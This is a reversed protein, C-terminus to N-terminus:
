YGKPAASNTPADRPLTGNMVPHPPAPDGFGCEPRLTGGGRCSRGLDGCNPQRCRTCQNGKETAGVDACYQERDGLPECTKSRRRPREILQSAHDRLQTVSESKVSEESPNNNARCEAQRRFAERPDRTAPPRHAAVVVRMAATTAAPYTMRLYRTTAAREEPCVVLIMKFTTRPQVYMATPSAQTRRPRRHAHHIPPAPTRDSAVASGTVDFGTTKRSSRKTRDATMSTVPMRM